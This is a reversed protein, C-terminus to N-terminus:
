LANALISSEFLSVNERSCQLQVGLGSLIRFFGVRSNITDAKINLLISRRLEFFKLHWTECFM